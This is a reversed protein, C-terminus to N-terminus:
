DKDTIYLPTRQASANICFLDNFKRVFDKTVDTVLLAELMAFGELLGRKNITVNQGNIYGIQKSSMTGENSVIPTGGEVSKSTKIPTSPNLANNYIQMSGNSLEEESLARIRDQVQLRREWSPGYMFIRTMVNYRFQNEDTFSIPTNGYQAYLLYYVTNINNIDLLKAPIGCNLYYDKFETASPFEDSFTPFNYIDYSKQEWQEKFIPM